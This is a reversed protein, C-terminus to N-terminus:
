DGGNAVEPDSSPYICEVAGPKSFLLVVGKTVTQSAPMPIDVTDSADSPCFNTANMAPEHGFTKYSCAMLVLDTGDAPAILCSTEGPQIKLKSGSLPQTAAKDYFYSCDAYNGDASVSAKVYYTTSM